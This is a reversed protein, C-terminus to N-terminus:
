KVPVITRHPWIVVNLHFSRKRRCARIRVAGDCITASLSAIKAIGSDGERFIADDPSEYPHGDIQRNFTSDLLPAPNSFRFGQGQDSNWSSIRVITKEGNSHKIASAFVERLLDFCLRVKEPAITRALSEGSACYSRYGIRNKYTEFLGDAALWLEEFKLAARDTSAHTTFWNSLMEIRMKLAADVAALTRIIDARRYRQESILRNQEKNLTSSFSEQVKAMFCEKASILQAELRQKLWECVGTIIAQFGSDPNLRALLELLEQQSPIIDFIGDPCDPRNTQMYKNLWDDIESLLPKEIEDIIHQQAPRTVSPISAVVAGELVNAFERRMTDHRFRTSLLAELGFGPHELFGDILAIVLSAMPALRNTLTYKVNKGNRFKYPTTARAETLLPSMGESPNLSRAATYLDMHKAIASSEFLSWPIEFQGANVSNLLLASNLTESERNFLSQTLLSTYGFKRVCTELALIRTALAATQNPALGLLLINDITLLYRSFAVAEEGYTEILWDLFEAISKSKAFPEIAVRLADSRASYNEIRQLLLAYVGNEDGLFEKLRSKRIVNQVWNWNIGTLFGPAVRVEQRVIVLWSKVAFNKEAVRLKWHLAKIWIRDSYPSPSGLQASTAEEIEVVTANSWKKAFARTLLESSAPAALLFPSLCGFYEILRLTDRVEYVQDRRPIMYLSTILGNLLRGGECFWWVKGFQVVEEFDKPIPYKRKRMRGLPLAITDEFDEFDPLDSPEIGILNTLYKELNEDFGLRSVLCGSPVQTQFPIASPSALKVNSTLRPAPITRALERLASFNVDSLEGKDALELEIHNVLIECADFPHCLLAVYAKFGIGVKSFADDRLLFRLTERESIEEEGSVVYSLFSDLQTENPANITHYILPFLFRKRLWDTKLTIRLYEELKEGSYSYQASRVRFAFLSQHDEKELAGIAAEIGDADRRWMALSIRASTEYMNLVRAANSTIYDLALRVYVKEFTKSSSSHIVNLSKWDISSFGLAFWEDRRIKFLKDRLFPSLLTDHTQTTNTISQFIRKRNSRYTLGGRAINRIAASMRANQM